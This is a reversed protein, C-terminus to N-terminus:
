LYAMGSVMEMNKHHAKLLTPNTSYQSNLHHIQIEADKDHHVTSLELLELYTTDNKIRAQIEVRSKAVDGHGPILFQVETFTKLIEESKLVTKKYAEFSHDIFPMEINSHYDGAIWLQLQPIITFIGDKTHGPSKFFIMDLGGIELREMDKEIIIDTVPYVIPYSRSIYFENDFEIIQQLVAEKKQSQGFTDSSIVVADKFKGYGIIHDYDSHTFLLFQKKNRHETHVFEFIHDIESPLWNPDVIMVSDGLEIVTTTTRYLSSEFVTVKPTQWSIKM